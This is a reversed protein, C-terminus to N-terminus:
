LNTFAFCKLKLQILNCHYIITTAQYKDGSLINKTLWIREKGNERKLVISFKVLLLLTKKIVDVNM